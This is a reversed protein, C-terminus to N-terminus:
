KGTTTDSDNKKNGNSNGSPVVTSTSPNSSPHPNPMTASEVTINGNSSDVKYTNGAKINKIQIFNYYAELGKKAIKIDASNKSDSLYKNM